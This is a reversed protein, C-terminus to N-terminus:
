EVLNCSFRIVIALAPHRILEYVATIRVNDIFVISNFVHAAAYIVSNESLQLVRFFGQRQAKAVTESAWGIDDAADAPAFGRLKCTADLLMWVKSFPSLIAREGALLNGHQGVHSGLLHASAQPLGLIPQPGM